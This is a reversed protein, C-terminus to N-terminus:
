HRLLSGQHVSKLSLHPGLNHYAAAHFPSGHIHCEVVDEGTFSRPGRFPLLLAEDLPRDGDYLHRLLARSPVAGELRGKCLGDVVAWARAGSVRVM